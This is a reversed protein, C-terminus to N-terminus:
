GAIACSDKAGVDAVARVPAVLGSARELPRAISEVDEGVVAGEAIELAM